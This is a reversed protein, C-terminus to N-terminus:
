NSDADKDGRMDAGCNPCYNWGIWASEDCEQNGFGCESCYWAQEWNNYPEPVLVRTYEVWHGVKQTIEEEVTGFYGGENQIIVTDKRIEDIYGHIYVEDGIKM